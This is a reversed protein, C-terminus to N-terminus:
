LILGLDDTFLKVDVLGATSLSHLLMRSKSIMLRGLLCNIDFNIIPPILSRKFLLKPYMPDVGPKIEIKVFLLLSLLRSCLLFALSSFSLFGGCFNYVFWGVSFISKFM